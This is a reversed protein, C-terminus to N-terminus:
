KKGEDRSRAAYEIPVEYIRAGRNLLKATIEPEIEFGRAQLDLAASPERRLVKYGTEVDSLSVNYLIKTALTVLKNGM